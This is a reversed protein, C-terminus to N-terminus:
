CYRGEVGGGVVKWSDAFLVRIGRLKILSIVKLFILRM